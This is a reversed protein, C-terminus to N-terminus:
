YSYEGVYLLEAQRSQMIGKLDVGVSKFGDMLNFASNQPCPPPPTPTPPTACLVVHVTFAAM